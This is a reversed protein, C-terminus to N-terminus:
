RVAGGTVVRTWQHLIQDIESKEPTLQIISKPASLREFSEPLVVGKRVPMMWAKTPILSQAEISILMELFEKALRTKESDFLVGKILAAGEVQLPQGEDLVLAQYRSCSRVGKGPAREAGGQDRRAAEDHYAQSTQYSWVLPAEERLFLQYASSWGPPLTLWQQSLAKWYNWVSDGLIKQTYLLFVLGPTSTRPDELILKRTWRPDILGALTQPPRQEALAERDAMWTLLGYDFPLFGPEVRVNDLLDGYGRPVWNPGSDSGSKSWGDTFQKIRPWLFQDIGLVVDAIRKGRRIDLQLRNMLQGGDGHAVLKVTCGCNQEFLSVLAPGIAGQAAISDYTYVVLEVKQTSPDSSLTVKFHEQKSSRLFGFFTFFALFSLTFILGLVLKRSM